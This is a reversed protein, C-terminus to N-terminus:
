PVWRRLQATEIHAFSSPNPSRSPQLSGTVHLRLAAATVGDTDTDGDLVLPEAAHVGEEVVPAPPESLVVDRVGGIGQCLVIHEEDVREHHGVIEDGAGLASPRM